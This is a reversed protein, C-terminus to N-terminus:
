AQEVKYYTFERAFLHTLVFYVQLNLSTKFFQSKAILLEETSLCFIRANGEITPSNFYPSFSGWIAGKPGELGM